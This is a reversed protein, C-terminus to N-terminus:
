PVQAMLFTILNRRPSGGLKFVHLINDHDSISGSTAVEDTKLSLNQYYGGTRKTSSKILEAVRQAATTHSHIPLLVGGNAM